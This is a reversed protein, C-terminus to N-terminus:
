VQVARGRDCREIRVGGGGCGVRGHREPLDTGIAALGGGKGIVQGARHHVGALAVRGPFVDVAVAIGARHTGVIMNWLPVAVSQTLRLLDGDWLSILLLSRSALM